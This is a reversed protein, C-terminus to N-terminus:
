PKPGFKYTKVREGVMAEIVNPTTPTPRENPPPVYGAPHFQDATFFAGAKIDQKLYRGLYQKLETPSLADRYYAEDAAVHKRRPRRTYGVILQDPTLREGRVLSRPAIAIDRGDAASDIANSGSRFVAAFMADKSALAASTAVVDREEIALVIPPGTSRGRLSPGTGLSVPLWKEDM